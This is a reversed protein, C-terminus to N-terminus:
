FRKNEREIVENINPVEQMFQELPVEEGTMRFAKKGSPSVLIMGVPKKVGFFSLGAKGQWHNLSVEVVPILTMGYITVPSEANIEKKEM